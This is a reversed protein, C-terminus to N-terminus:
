IAFAVGAVRSSFDTPGQYSDEAGEILLRQPFEGFAILFGRRVVGVRGDRIVQLRLRRDLLAELALEREDGDGTLAITETSVISFDV